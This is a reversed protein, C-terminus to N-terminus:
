QRYVRNKRKERNHLIIEEAYLKSSDLAATSIEYFAAIFNMCAGNFTKRFKKYDSKNNGCAVIRIFFYVLFYVILLFEGLSIVGKCIGYIFMGFDKLIEM